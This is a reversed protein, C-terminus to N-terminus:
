MTIIDCKLPPIHVAATLRPTKSGNTQASILTVWANLQTQELSLSCPFSKVDSVTAQCTKPKKESYLVHTIIDKWFISLPFMEIKGYTSPKFETQVIESEWMGLWINTLTYKQTIKPLREQICCAEQTKQTGSEYRSPGRSWSTWWRPDRSGGQRTRGWSGTQWSRWAKRACFGVQWPRAVPSYVQIYFTRNCRKECRLGSM